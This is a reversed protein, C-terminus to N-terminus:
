LIKKRSADEKRTMTLKLIGMDISVEISDLDIIQPIEYVKKFAQVFENGEGEFEIHLTNKASDVEVSLEDSKIGPIAIAIEFGTETEKIKSKPSFKPFDWATDLLPEMFLDFPHKTTKTFIM